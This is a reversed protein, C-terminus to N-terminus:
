DEEMSLVMSIFQCHHLMLIMLVLLDAGGNEMM